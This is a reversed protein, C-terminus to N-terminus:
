RVTAESHASTRAREDSVVRWADWASGITGELDHRSRWGLETRIRTPDAVVRAPDGARPPSMEYDFDFGTVRKVALMVELVSTGSGTGINYVAALDDSEMHRMVVAHADAVDDVHIYDRVCTGDETPYQDGFIKPTAGSTLARFVMPILNNAGRDGMIASGAGAVNFYRLSVWSLREADACDRIIQESMLKTWGYPSSPETDSEEVVLGDPSVGYVAASSSFLIRRVGAEVMATLLSHTGIVNERYYILPKNVSEEVAKKAALHVVGEARHSRLSEVVFRTDLVSGLFFSTGASLRDRSGSSLDDLVAVTHGDRQLARAVHAGIYGAGGTVLIRM